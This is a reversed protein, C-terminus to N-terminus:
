QSPLGNRIGRFVFRRPNLNRTLADHSMWRDRVVLWFFRAMAAGALLFLCVLLRYVPDSFGDDTKRSM